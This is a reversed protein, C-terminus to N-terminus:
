PSGGPTVTILKLGRSSREAPVPKGLSVRAWARAESAPESEYSRPDSPGPGQSAAPRRQKEAPTSQIMIM